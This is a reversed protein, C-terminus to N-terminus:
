RPFARWRGALAAPPDSVCQLSALRVADGDRRAVLPMVGAELLSQVEDDDLSHGSPPVATVSGGAHHLYLPLRDVEVHDAPRMSWGDAAFAAGLVLAPVLAPSGWLLADTAGAADLGPELEEFTPLADCSEGEEGYPLRLLLAPHVLGLWRGQASRRLAEWGDAARSAPPRRLLAAPAATVWPAGCAAAVRALADLLAVEDAEGSEGTDEAAPHLGVLLSWPAGDPLSRAGDALMRYVPGDAVGTSQGAAAALQARSADIIALRLNSSTEVRRVLMDLGRWLAELARFRPHALILRLLAATAADVSALLERQRPDADPVLHPGVVRKLFSALDDGGGGSVAVGDAPAAAVIEDLLSGTALRSATDAVSPGPASEPGSARAADPRLEAAAAAFTRPDALRRRLERLATFVPLRAHLSDPHFDDLSSFRVRLPEEAGIDLSLEPAVRAMVADLDDRDIRLPRSGALAGAPLEGARGSFDGLLAVHFPTDDSPVAAQPAGGANVDVQVQSFVDRQPM